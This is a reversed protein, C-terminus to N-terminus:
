TYGDDGDGRGDGARDARLEQLQRLARVHRLGQHDRLDAASQDEGSGELRPRSPRARRARLKRGARGVQRDGTKFLDKGEPSKLDLTLSRKNANFSLFFLSDSDKIDRMNTRAVDGGKPDELKIVDAGLFALMQGCAPGAQNHTMDIIRIGSLAQAQAQSM